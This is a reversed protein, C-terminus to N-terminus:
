IGQHSLTMTNKNLYRPIKIKISVTLDTDEQGEPLVSTALLHLVPKLSSTSVCSEESLADTFDQLNHLAKHVLVKNNHWTPNPHLM